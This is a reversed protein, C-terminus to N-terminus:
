LRLFFVPAMSALEAGIQLGLVCLTQWPARRLWKIAFFAVVPAQGAMLLQWLHATIGEDAEHVVAGNIALDGLVKIVVLALGTLSMAVPVFAGPKKMMSRVELQSEPM